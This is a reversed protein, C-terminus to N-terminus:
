ARNFQTQSLQQSAKLVLWAWFLPKLSWHWTSSNMIRV